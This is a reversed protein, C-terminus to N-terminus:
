LPEYGPIVRPKTLFKYLEKVYSEARETAALKQQEETADILSSPFTIVTPDILGIQQVTAELIQQTNFTGQDRADLYSKRPLGGANVHSFAIHLHNADLVAWVNCPYLAPVAARAIRYRRVASEVADKFFTPIKVAKNWIIDPINGGGTYPLDFM